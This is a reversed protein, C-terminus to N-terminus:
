QALTRAIWGALMELVSPSLTEELKGYEAITCDNCHQFLHNLGPLEAITFNQNGAEALAAAIAPLNQRPSVQLDRSGNMALVPVTVKRLTVAPDYFLFSRLEPSAISAFQAAIMSDRAAMQKRQEAPAAAKLREWGAKMKETADSEDKSERVADIMMKQVVRNEAIAGSAAGAARAILEGQLYLVQEGTVGTGALMVVFAVRPDRSAALPGVIGGESHGILGIRSGDIEKRGRLFQVGALVDGAMDDLTARSSSGTSKGVGRDDLRLVAIGHRTLFDAIVLFPKHGFLTEDRDEPGSGTILLAAPFPGAGKPFTLTGALHIPGSEYAVDEANYPFPPRPMQPRNLAEVHEVRRFTLPMAAGQTFTGSIENGDANLTGDFTAHLNPLELHLKGEHFTTVQAPLGMAGQDISDLKSSLSGNAEKTVHLGIRLSITGAKLTGQWAGEVGGSQAWLPAGLLLCLALRIM